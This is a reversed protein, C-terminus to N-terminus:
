ANLKLKKIFHIISFIYTKISNKQLKNALIGIGPELSQRGFDQQSTTVRFDSPLAAGHTADHGGEGGKSDDREPVLLRHTIEKYIFALDHPPCPHTYTPFTADRM